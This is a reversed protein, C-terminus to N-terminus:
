HRDDDDVVHDVRRRALADGVEREAGAKARTMLSVTSM